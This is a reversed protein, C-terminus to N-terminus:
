CMMPIVPTYIYIYCICHNKKFFINKSLKEKSEAAFLESLSDAIKRRKSFSAVDSRPGQQSNKFLIKRRPEFLGQNQLLNNVLLLIFAFM